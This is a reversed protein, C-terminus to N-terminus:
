FYVYARVYTHVYACVVWTNTACRFLSSGSRWSHHRLLPWWVPGRRQWWRHWQLLMTERPSCHTYSPCSSQNSPLGPPSTSSSLLVHLQTSYMRVDQLMEDFFPVSFCRWKCYISPRCHLQLISYIDPARYLWSKALVNTLQCSWMLLCLEHGQWRKDVKSSGDMPYNQTTRVYTHLATIQSPKTCRPQEQDPTRNSKIHMSHKSHM